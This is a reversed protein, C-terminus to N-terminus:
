GSWLAMAARTAEPSIRSATSAATPGSPYPPRRREAAREAAGSPPGSPRRRGPAQAFAPTPMLEQMMIICIPKQLFAPGGADAIRARRGM